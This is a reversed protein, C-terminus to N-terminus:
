DSWVDAIVLHEIGEPAIRVIVPGHEILVQDFGESNNLLEDLKTSLMPLARALNVMPYPLNDYVALWDRDFRKFEPNSLKKVKRAIADAIFDGWAREPEDGCWPESTLSGRHLVRRMEELSLKPAGPRFLGLDLPANPFEREALAAYAAFDEPVAEVVEIGTRTSGEYLIFDPRDAHEVTLPFELSDNTALTSLLHGITARETQQTTRGETRLDVSIDLRALQTLLDERGSARLILEAM